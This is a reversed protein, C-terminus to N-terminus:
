FGDMGHGGPSDPFELEAFHQALAARAGNVKGQVCKRPLLDRELHQVRFHHGRGAEVLYDGLLEHVFGRERPFERVRVDRRNEFGRYVFGGAVDRDFVYGAAIQDLKEGGVPQKRDLVGDLDREFGAAREIVGEPLADHVAVDLGRVDHDRAPGVDLYGIEPRSIQMLCALVLNGVDARRTVHRGFLDPALRQPVVAVHIRQTDHKVLQKGTVAGEGGRAHGFQELFDQVVIRNRWTRPAGSQAALDILEDKAHEPPIGAASIVATVPL